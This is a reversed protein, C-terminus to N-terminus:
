RPGDNRFGSNPSASKNRLPPPQTFQPIPPKCKDTQEQKVCETPVTDKRLKGSFYAFAVIAIVCCLAILVLRPHM